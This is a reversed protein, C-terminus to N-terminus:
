RILLMKQSSTFNNSILHYIYIGSPLNEAIFDVIYRGNTLSENVLTIVKEGLTNYVILSVFGDEPIQFQIKTSPNFPNPYNQSLEYTM